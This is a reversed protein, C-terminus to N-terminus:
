RFSRHEQERVIGEVVEMERIKRELWSREVISQVIVGKAVKGRWNFAEVDCEVKHDRIDTITAKITVKMGIPTLMLHHIDIHFGMGEEHPELYSFITKRAAWEMHHVLASTSYLDHVFEDPFRAAMDPTVTIELEASQGIQLGPKM